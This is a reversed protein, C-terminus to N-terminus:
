GRRMLVISDKGKQEEQAEERSREDKENEHKKRIKHRKTALGKDEKHM